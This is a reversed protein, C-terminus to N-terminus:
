LERFVFRRSDSVNIGKLPSTLIVRGKGKTNGKRTKEHVENPDLRNSSAHVRAQPATMFANCAM